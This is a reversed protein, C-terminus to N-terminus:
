TLRRADLPLKKAKKKRSHMRLIHFRLSLSINDFSADCYPCKFYTRKGHKEHVILPKRSFM